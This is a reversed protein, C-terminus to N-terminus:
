AGVGLVDRSLVNFKSMIDGNKCKIRSVELCSFYDVAYFNM